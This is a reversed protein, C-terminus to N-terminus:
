VPQEVTKDGLLVDSVGKCLHRLKHVLLVRAVLSVSRHRAIQVVINGELSGELKHKFALLRRIAVCLEDQMICPAPGLSSDQRTESTQPAANGQDQAQCDLPMTSSHSRMLRKKKGNM